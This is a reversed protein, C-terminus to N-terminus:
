KHDESAYLDLREQTTYRKEKGTKYSVLSFDSQSLALLDRRITKPNVNFACALEKIIHNNIIEKTCEITVVM